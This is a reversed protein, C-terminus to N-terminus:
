EDSITGISVTASSLLQNGKIVLLFQLFMRYIKMTKLMYMHSNFEYGDSAVKM